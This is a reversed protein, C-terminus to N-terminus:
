AERQGGGSSSGAAPSRLANHYFAGKDFADAHEVLVSRVLEPSNFLYVRRPGYHFQGVDGFEGALRVLLGLPDKRLAHMSGIVLPERAGPITQVALPTTM